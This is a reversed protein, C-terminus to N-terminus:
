LKSDLLRHQKTPANKQLMELGMDCVVFQTKPTIIHQFESGYRATIPQQFFLHNSEGVLFHRLALKM